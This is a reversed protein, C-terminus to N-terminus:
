LSTNIHLQDTDWFHLGYQAMSIITDQILNTHHDSQTDMEALRALPPPLPANQTPDPSNLRVDLERTRGQLQTLIM